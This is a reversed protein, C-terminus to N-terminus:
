IAEDDNTLFEVQYVIMRTRTGKDWKDVIRLLMIIIEEEATYVPAPHASPRTDMLTVISTAKLQGRVNHLEFSTDVDDLTLPKARGTREPGRSFPIIDNLADLADDLTM